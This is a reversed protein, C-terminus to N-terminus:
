ATAAIGCPVCCGVLLLRLLLVHRHRGMPVQLLELHWWLLLLWLLV